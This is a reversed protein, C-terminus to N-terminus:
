TNQKIKPLYNIFASNFVIASKIPCNVDVTMKIMTIHTKASVSNPFFRNAITGICGSYILDKKVMTQKTELKKPIKLLM